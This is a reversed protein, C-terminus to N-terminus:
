GNLRASIITCKNTIESFSATVYEGFSDVWVYKRSDLTKEIMTGEENGIKFVFEDYTLSEGSEMLDLIENYKSFDVNRNALIDRNYNIKIRRKNDSGYSIELGSDDTIEWYYKDYDLDILEGEFGIIANIEAVTNEIKIKKICDVARCNGKYKKHIASSGCSTLILMFSVCIIISLIRKM